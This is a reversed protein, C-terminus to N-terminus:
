RFCRFDNNVQFPYIYIVERFHLINIIHMLVPHHIFRGINLEDDDYLLNPYALLQDVGPRSESCHSTEPLNKSIIQNTNRSSKKKIEQSRCIQQYYIQDPLYTNFLAHLFQIVNRM